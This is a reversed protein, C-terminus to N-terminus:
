IIRKSKQISVLHKILSKYEKHHREAQRNQEGHKCHKEMSLIMEIFILKQWISHTANNFYNQKSTPHKELQYPSDDVTELAAHDLCGGM